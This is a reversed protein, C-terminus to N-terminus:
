RPSPLSPARVAEFTRSKPVRLAAAPLPATCLDSTGTLFAIREGACLPARARDLGYSLRRTVGGPELVCLSSGEATPTSGPGLVQVSAVLQRGDASWCIAPDFLRLSTAWRGQLRPAGGATAVLSATAIVRQEPQARSAPIFTVAIESGAAAVREPFALASTIGPLELDHVRGSPPDLARLTGRRRAVYLVAGSAIAPSVPEDGATADFRTWSGRRLDLQAVQLAGPEGLTCIALSGSANVTIERVAAPAPFAPRGGPLWVLTGGATAALLREGAWAHSAIAAAERRPSARGVAPPTVAYLIARSGPPEDVSAVPFLRGESAAFKADEFLPRLQPLVNPMESELVLLHSAKAVLLSDLLADFSAERPARVFGAGAFYAALPFRGAVRDEFRLHPRLAAGIERARPTLPGGAVLDRAGGATGAILLLGAALALPRRAGGTIEMLWGVGLVLLFPLAPVLLRPQVHVAFWPITVLFLLPTGLHPARRWALQAAGPLLVVPFVAHLSRGLAALRALAAASCDFQGQKPSVVFHGVAQSALLMYAAVPLFGLGLSWPIRRDSWGRLLVLAGLVLAAEPRVLFATGLTIGALVDRRLDFALLAGVLLAGYLSETMTEVHSRVLHPHVALVALVILAPATSLHRRALRYTLLLGGLGALLSVIRGALVADRAVVRGALVALPYGPPFGGWDYGWHALREAQRLYYTGDYTLEPVRWLALARVALALIVVVFTALRLRRPSDSGHDAGTRSRPASM